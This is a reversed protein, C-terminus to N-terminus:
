EGDDAVEWAVFTWAVTNLETDSEYDTREDVLAWGGARMASRVTDIAANPNAKSWLVLYSYVSYELVTDDAHADEVTMTTHVIYQDPPASYQATPKWANAYAPIGCSSLASQPNM